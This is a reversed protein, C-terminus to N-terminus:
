FTLRYLSNPKNTTFWIRAHYQANYVVAAVLYSPYGSIDDDWRGAMDKNDPDNKVIDLVALAEDPVLGGQCLQKVVYEQIKM